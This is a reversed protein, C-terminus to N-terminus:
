FPPPPFRRRAFFFQFFLFFFAVSLLGLVGAWPGSASMWISSFSSLSCFPHPGFSLWIKILEKSTPDRSLLDTPKLRLFSTFLLNPFDRFVQDFFRLPWANYDLPPSYVTWFHGTFFGYQFKFFPFFFHCHFLFAGPLFTV